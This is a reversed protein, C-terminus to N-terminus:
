GVGGDYLIRLVIELDEADETLQVVPCGDAKEASYEPQPFSLMDQFVPSHRALIGGHLRYGIRSAVLIVNGDDFWFDNSIRFNANANGPM